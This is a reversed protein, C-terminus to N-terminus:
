ATLASAHELFEAAIADAVPIGKETLTAADATLAILGVRALRDFPDAFFTRADVGTRATFADFRIGTHLRLMLMALEGARQEPALREVDSAPLSGSAAAREWEGLHPRNRWRWGEVHSAGLPRPRHLQRRDLVGLNHRCAEGPV